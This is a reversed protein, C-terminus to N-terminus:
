VFKNEQADKAEALLLKKCIKKVIKSLSLVFISFKGLCFLISLKLTFQVTIM